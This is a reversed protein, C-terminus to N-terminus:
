KRRLVISLNRGNIQPNQELIAVDELQQNIKEIMKYGIEQHAMERGKFIVLVRVKHGEDLFEKIKRIKIMLDNEAIRLGFNIQKLESVKAKKKAKQQEKMKQYQYKGWDLIKVVPPDATPSIEILDMEAEQALSLAESVPMIGLQKGDSSIVRVEKAKIDQNIRIQKSITFRGRRLYVNNLLEFAM